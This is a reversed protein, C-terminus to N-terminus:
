LTGNVAPTHGCCPDDAKMDGNYILARARCGGCSERYECRGCRGYGGYERFARFLESEWIDRLDRDFINGAGRTFYSCPYVEGEAGIYAISRAAVCGRGGGPSFSLSRRGALRGSKGSEQAFIRYYSPACTPRMLMTEEGTEVGYHWKLIGEHEAPPIMEDMLDKGRGMPVVLFMYWAKAGLEKALACTDAIRAHNRQTFSSNIVFDISHERLKCAARLIADFSGAQKRFDDHVAAEPGDLSLAAIRIGSNKISECARDDILSGNTALAMKFGLSTGYAALDFIDPRLLPEGGSLVFVPRAFEAVRDMLVRARETGLGETGTDGASSRCHVCRLNCKRTSEWAVWKLPGAGSETNM